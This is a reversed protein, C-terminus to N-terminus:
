RFCGDLASSALKAPTASQMQPRLTLLRYSFQFQHHSCAMSWWSPQGTRFWLLSAALKTHTEDQTTAAFSFADKKQTLSCAIHAHTCTMNSLLDGLWALLCLKYLRSYSPMSFSCWTWSSVLEMQLKLIPGATPLGPWINLKTLAGPSHRHPPLGFKTM